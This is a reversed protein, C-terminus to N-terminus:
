SSSFKIPQCSQSNNPNFEPSEACDDITHLYLLCTAWPLKINLIWVGLRFSPMRSRYSRQWMASKLFSKWANGNTLKLRFRLSFSIRPGRLAIKVSIPAGGQILRTAATHRAPSVMLKFRKSFSGLRHRSIASFYLVTTSSSHDLATMEWPSISFNFTKFCSVLSLSLERLHLM